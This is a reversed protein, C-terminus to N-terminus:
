SLESAMQRLLKAVEAELGPPIELSLTLPRNSSLTTARERCEGDLIADSVMKGIGFFDSGESLDGVERGIVVGAPLECSVKVTKM